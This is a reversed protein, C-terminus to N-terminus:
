GNEELESMIREQLAWMDSQLREEGDPHDYGMVHLVGHVALRMLEQEPAVGLSEAQRLAQEFGIYVDGLPPEGADYLAFSIVDTPGDHSLYEKNLASIAADDQLAVSVEAEDVSLTQLATRAAHPLMKRQAAPRASGAAFGRPLNVTIRLPM